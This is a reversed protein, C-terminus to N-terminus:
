QLPLRTMIINNAKNLIVALQDIETSTMETSNILNKINVLLQDMLVQQEYPLDVSTGVGLVQPNPQRDDIRTASAGSSTDNTNRTSDALQDPAIDIAEDVILIGDLTRVEDTVGDNDSDLSLDSFGSATKEFRAVTNADSSINEARFRIQQESGEIVEELILSFSGAAYGKILVDYEIDSPIYLYSSSGIMFFSSGPIEELIYQDNESNITVGTRNGSVDEAILTVPSHTSIGDFSEGEYEPLQSSVYASSAPSSSSILSIVLDQIDSPETLNSHVAPLLNDLESEDASANYKQLDVYYTVKEGQYGAASLAMVTEDGYLGM